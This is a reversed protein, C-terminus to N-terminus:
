TVAPDVDDTWRRRGQDYRDGASQVWGTTVILVFWVPSSDVKGTCPVGSGIHRKSGICWQRWTSSITLIIMQSSTADSPRPVETAKAHQQLFRSSGTKSASHSVWLRSRGSSLDKGLSIQLPPPLYGTLGGVVYTKGERM